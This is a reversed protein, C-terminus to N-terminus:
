NIRVIFIGSTIFIFLSVCVMVIAVVLGGTIYTKSVHCVNEFSQDTKYDKSANKLRIFTNLNWSSLIILILSTLLLVILSLEM